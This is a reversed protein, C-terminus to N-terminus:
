LCFENGDPDACVIFGGQGNDVGGVLSGGLAQVSRLAERLDDVEIDVHVRNKGAKTEPVQQLVVKIGSPLTARRFTPQVSAGFPEGIVASWFEVARVMDGVDIVVAEFRGIGRPGSTM